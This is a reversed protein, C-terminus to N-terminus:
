VSEGFITLVSALLGSVSTLFFHMYGVLIGLYTQDLFYIVPQSFKTNIKKFVHEVYKECELIVPIM